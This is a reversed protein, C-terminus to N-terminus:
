DSDLGSLDAGLVLALLAMRVYMGNEMQEFYKARKDSDVDTSIEDVRPLPHLVLMHEPAKAMVGADVVYCGRVAEYAEATEFREKQIRTVYLVDSRGLVAALDTHQEVTVNRAALQDCIHQPMALSPPSVFILRPPTELRSVLLSLSHVTRGHKLDGILTLTLGALSVPAKSSDSRATAITFLDLLAQTPHEGV